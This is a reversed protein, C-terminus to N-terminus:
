NSATLFHISNKLIMLAYRIAIMRSFWDVDDNRTITLAIVRCSIVWSWTLFSDNLWFSCFDILLSLLLFCLWEILWFFSSFHM